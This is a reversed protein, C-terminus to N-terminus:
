EDVSYSVRLMEEMTTIGDSVLKACTERLNIMGQHGASLRLADIGARHNILDRMDKTMMLVEHVAIRKHYGTFGCSQCGAGYQLQIPEYPRLLALEAADPARSTRCHPCIRRILRQAVIGVISSSILFPEIGMDMLRSVATVADNTHVTSFVLHGTIASRVAIEATEVDRIEGVLVIDPDQRLLSRLGSAFTLGAKPNVQVQNVGDLHYEVPDEITVININPRNLEALAAYLTTTKGSGTPGCILVMGHPHKIIRDFRDLNEPTFGLNVKSMLSGTRGLLRIAVKEGDVTPLVSLRMDIDVGDINAEVRGDQPVRKEAIDMQGIIKIRTIVASLAAKSTRMIEQLEGDVRFRVRLCDSLPEFHIDSADMRVAHQIISNVLRVVPANSVDTALQAELSGLDEIAFDRNLDKMAKEANEKGYQRDIASQIDRSMAIGAVVEMGAARRVDEIAALDLPDTMAITLRNNEIQVPILKNTRSLIEPVRNVADAQIPTETLDIFSVHFHYELMSILQRENIVGKEVLAEGLRLGVQKQYELVDDLQKKSILGSELMLEGLRRSQRFESM